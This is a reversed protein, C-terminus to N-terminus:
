FLRCLIQVNAAVLGAIWVVPTTVGVAFALALRGVAGRDTRVLIPVAPLMLFIAIGTLFYAEAGWECSYPAVVFAFAFLAAWVSGAILLVKMLPTMDPRGNRETPRAAM